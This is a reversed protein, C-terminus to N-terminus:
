SVAHFAKSPRIPVVGKAKIVESVGAMAAVLAAGTRPLPLNAIDVRRRGSGGQVSARLGAQLQRASASREASSQEALQAPRGGAQPATGFSARARSTPADQFSEARQGVGDRQPEQKDHQM